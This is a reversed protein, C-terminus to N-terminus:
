MEKEAGAQIYFFYLGNPVPHGMTNKGNWLITHYGAPLSQSQMLTAVRQGLMNFVHFSVSTTNPLGLSIRIGESQTVIGQATFPNPYADSLIFTNPIEFSTQQWEGVATTNRVSFNVIASDVLGERDKVLLRLKFDGTGPSQISGSKVSSALATWTQGKPALSWTFNTQELPGDEPDRATGSFNVAENISFVTGEVPLIIQAIPPQNLRAGVSIQIYTTDVLSSNDTVVLRVNYDGPNTFTHTPNAESSTLGDGFNWAWSSIVGDADTSNEGTFDITLPAHGSITSAGAIAVPTALNLPSVIIQIWATDALAGEDRVILRVDFTGATSFVHRVDATSATYTDGFNWSYVNINNNPDTSNSGKFDVLLPVIGSTPSASAVATPAENPPDKKITVKNTWIQDTTVNEVAVFLGTQESVNQQAVTINNFDDTGKEFLPVLEAQVLLSENGAKVKKYEGLKPLSERTGM